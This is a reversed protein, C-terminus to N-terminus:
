VGCSSFGLPSNIRYASFGAVPTMGALKFGRKDMATQSILLTRGAVADALLVMLLVVAQVADLVLGGLDTILAMFAMQFLLAHMWRNLIVIAEAAMSWVAGVVLVLKTHKGLLKTKLTMVLRQYRIFLGVFGSEAIAIAIEVVQMGTLFSRDRAQATVVHMGAVLLVDDPGFSDVALFLHCDFVGGSGFAAVAGNAAM